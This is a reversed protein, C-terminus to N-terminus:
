LQKIRYAEFANILKEARDKQEENSLIRMNKGWVTEPWLSDNKTRCIIHIHLQPTKNGIAAINLRDCEFTSEMIDSCLNIEKVLQIQQDLMLQNIQQVNKIQPILLIWPFEKDEMLVLCLNLEIIKKKQKFSSLLEFPM